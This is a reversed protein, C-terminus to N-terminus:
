RKSTGKRRRKERSLGTRLWSTSVRQTERTEGKEPGVDTRPPSYREGKMPRGGRMIRESKQAPKFAAGRKERNKSTGSRPPIGEGKGSGKTRHHVKEQQTAAEEDGGELQLLFDKGIKKLSGERYMGKSTIKRKKRSSLRLKRRGHIKTM